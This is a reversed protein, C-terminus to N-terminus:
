ISILRRLCASIAASRRTMSALPSRSAAIRRASPSALAMSSLPRARFFAGSTTWSVKASFSAGPTCVIKTGEV